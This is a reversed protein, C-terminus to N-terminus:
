QDATCSDAEWSNQYNRNRRTFHSVSSGTNLRSENIQNRVTQVEGQVSITCVLTRCNCQIKSRLLCFGTRTTHASPTVYLREPQWLSVIQRVCGSYRSFHHRLSVSLFSIVLSASMTMDICSRDSLYPVVSIFETKSILGRHRHKYPWIWQTYQPM